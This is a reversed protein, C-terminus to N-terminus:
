NLLGELFVKTLDKKLKKYPFEGSFIIWHFSSISLMGFLGSSLSESDLNKFSGDDIGEKIIDNIIIIYEQNIKEVQEKLGERHVWMERVFFSFFDQYFNFFELQSDIVQELKDRSSKNEDISNKVYEILKETGFELLFDLLAIKSDFYLYFTGKGVHAKAAIESVTTRNFNKEKFIKIAAKCIRERKDELGNFLSKELELM